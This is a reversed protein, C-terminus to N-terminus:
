MKQLLEEEQKKKKQLIDDTKKKAELVKQANKQDEKQLLKIRNILKLVENDSDM